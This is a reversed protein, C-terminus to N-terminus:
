YEKAPFALKILKEENSDYKKELRKIWEEAYGGCSWVYPGSEFGVDTYDDYKYSKGKGSIFTQTYAMEIRGLINERTMPVILMAFGVDLPDGMCFPDSIGYQFTTGEPFSSIYTKFEKLTM